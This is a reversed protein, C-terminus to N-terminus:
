LEFSTRWKQDYDRSFLLQIREARRPADDLLIRIAEALQNRRPDDAAEGARDLRDLSAAAELIRARTPLFEEELVAPSSRPPTM